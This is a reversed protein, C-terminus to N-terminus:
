GSARDVIRLPMIMVFVPQKSAGHCRRYPRKAVIEPLAPAPAGPRQHREVVRLPAPPGAAASPILPRGIELLQPAIEIALEVTEEATPAPRVGRRAHRASRTTEAAAGTQDRYEDHEDPHRTAEVDTRSTWTASPQANCVHDLR